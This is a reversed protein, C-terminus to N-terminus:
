MGVVPAVIGTSVTVNRGVLNGMGLEELASMILAATSSRTYSSLFFGCGAM